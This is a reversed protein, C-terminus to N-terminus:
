NVMKSKCIESFYHRSKKWRREGTEHNVWTMGFRLRYGDLEEYSDADNWYMYGKLNVGCKLLRCVMRLHERIYTVREPDDCEKEPDNINPLACGNETIYTEIGHYKEHIYMVTDFLGPPYPIYQQGPESFFPDVRRTKMPNTPDMETRAPTYYNLGVFDMPIFWKDLDEQYNEPMNDRVYPIERILVQPYKGELMPEVWWGFNYEYQLQVAHIDEEKMWAPHIASTCNVAGIKGGLNMSKYLRVARFHAILTYHGALLAAKKDEIFPPFSGLAMGSNISIQAENFTSWMKVRDGFAEFCVKAYAEFWEPFQPNTFGGQEFLCMPLDWHYLDVFPTINCAILKDIVKNYFEIGKPNVEGYGTPIIRCWSLSLRYVNQGTKAMDEIYAEYNDYFFCGRDPLDTSNPDVRGSKMIGEKVKKAIGPSYIGAYERAFYEMINESKGDRDMAGESQFASNATGILFDEPLRFGYM